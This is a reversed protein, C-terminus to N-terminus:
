DRSGLELLRARKRFMVAVYKAVELQICLRKWRQSCGVGILIQLLWDDNDRMSNLDYHTLSQINLFLDRREREYASCWLLAHTEDEIEGKACLTCTREHIWEGKWRGVEIRLSNTGGRLATM